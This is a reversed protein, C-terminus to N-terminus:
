SSQAPGSVAALLIASANPSMRAFLRTEDALSVNILVVQPAAAPGGGGSVKIRHVAQPIIISL